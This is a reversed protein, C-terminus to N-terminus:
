KHMSKKDKKGRKWDMKPTAYIYIYTKFYNDTQITYWALGHVLSVHNLTILVHTLSSINFLIETIRFLAKLLIYRAEVRIMISM